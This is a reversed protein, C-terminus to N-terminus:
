GRRRAATMRTRFEAGDLVAAGREEVPCVSIEAEDDALQPLWEALFEDVPIRVPREGKVEADHELKALAPYPWIPLQTRRDATETFLIEDEDGWVWLAGREALIEFTRAARDDGGLGRFKEAQGRSIDDPAV